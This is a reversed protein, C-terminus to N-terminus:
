TLMVREAHLMRVSEHVIMSFFEACEPAKLALQAASKASPM